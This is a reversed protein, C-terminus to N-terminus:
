LQIGWDVRSRLRTADDAGTRVWRAFTDHGLTQRAAVVCESVEARMRPETMNLFAIVPTGARVLEVGCQWAVLEDVGSM